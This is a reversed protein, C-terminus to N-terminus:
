GEGTAARRLAECAFCWDAVCGISHERVAQVVAEARRAREEAEEARRAQAGAEREALDARQQEVFMAAQGVRWEGIRWAMKESVGGTAGQALYAMIEDDTLTVEGPDTRDTM